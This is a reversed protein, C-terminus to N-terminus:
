ETASKKLDAVADNWTAVATIVLEMSSFLLLNLSADSVGGSENENPLVHEASAILIPEGSPEQGVLAKVVTLQGTVRNCARLQTIEDTDADALRWQGFVRLISVERESCQVFLKQGQADVEIDGDVDVSATVNEALLLRLAQDRLASPPRGTATPVQPIATPDTM